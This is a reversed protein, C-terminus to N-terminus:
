ANEQIRENPSVGSTLIWGAELDVRRIAFTQGPNISFDFFLGTPSATLATAPFETINSLIGTVTELIGGTVGGNGDGDVFLEWFTINGLTLVGFTGDTQIKGVISGIGVTRNVTYTRKVWVLSALNQCSM